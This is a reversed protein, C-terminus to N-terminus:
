AKNVYSMTMFEYYNRFLIKDPQLPDLCFSYMKKKKMILGGGGVAQTQM